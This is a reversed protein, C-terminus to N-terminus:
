CVSSPSLYWNLSANQASEDHIHWCAALTLILPLVHSYVDEWLTVM